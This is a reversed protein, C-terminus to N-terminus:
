KKLFKKELINKVKLSNSKSIPICIEKNGLYLKSNTYTVIHNINIIFGQHCRIFMEKNLHKELDKLNTTYEYSADETFIVVKKGVKEIYLIEQQLITSIKGKFKINLKPKMYKKIFDLKHKYSIIKYLTLKFKKSNIPKLIYDLAQVQYTDYACSSNTSM